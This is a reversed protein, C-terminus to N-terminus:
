LKYIFSKIENFVDDISKDASITLLKKNYNEKYYNIVPNTQDNYENYRKYMSERNDNSRQVLVEGTIDDIGAVKPPNYKVHYSRGSSIHMLRGEVREVLKNIDVKFEIIGDINHKNENLINHFEILNDLTRPYRPYGDFIVGYKCEPKKMYETINVSSM